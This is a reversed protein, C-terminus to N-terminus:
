ALLEYLRHFAVDVFIMMTLVVTVKVAGLALTGFTFIHPHHLAVAYLAVDQSQLTM